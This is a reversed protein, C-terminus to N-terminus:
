QKSNGYEYIIFGGYQFKALHTTYYSFIHSYDSKDKQMKIM